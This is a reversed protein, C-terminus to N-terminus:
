VKKLALQAKKKYQELNGASDADQKMRNAALTLEAQLQAILDKDAQAERQREEQFRQLQSCHETQIAALQQQLDTRQAVVQEHEAADNRIQELARDREEVLTATLLAAAEAAERLRAVERQSESYREALENAKLRLDSSSRDVNENKLKM